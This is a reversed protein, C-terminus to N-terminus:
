GAALARQGEPSSYLRQVVPGCPQAPLGAATVFDVLNPPAGLLVEHGRRRLEVALGVVPHVDGRTGTLPIAIRM